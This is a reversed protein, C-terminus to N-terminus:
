RLPPVLPGTLRPEPDRAVLRSDVQVVGAVGEVMANVVRADSPHRVSGELSVIGEHVLTVAHDEPVEFPDALKARIEAELEADPRHFLRLVDPRSVIGVLRGAEIVPLRKVGLELLRRAATRLDEDPSTVVVPASMVDAATLGAARRAWRAERDGILDDLLSLVRRRRRGYAEKAVLDAETVMGVLGGERDVVPLGSVENVLLREVVKKFPTDGTVTIPNATMVDCVKM